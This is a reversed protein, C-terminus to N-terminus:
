LKAFAEQFASPDQAGSLSYKGGIIFYPVGTVGQAFRKLEQHVEEAMSLKDDVIKDADAVGAKQGAAKLVYPDNIFKGQLGCCIDLPVIM